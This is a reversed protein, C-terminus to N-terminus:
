PSFLKFKTKGYFYLRKYPKKGEKVNTEEVVEYTAYPLCVDDSTSFQCYLFTSPPHGRSCQPHQNECLKSCKRGCIEKCTKIDMVCNPSYADRGKGFPFPVKPCIMSKAVDIVSKKANLVQLYLFNNLSINKPYASM